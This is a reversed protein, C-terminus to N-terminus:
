IFILIKIYFNLNQVLKVAKIVFGGVWKESGAKVVVGLRHYAWSALFCNWM